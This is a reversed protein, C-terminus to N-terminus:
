ARPSRIRRAGTAPTSAAPPTEALGRECRMLKERRTRDLVNENVHTHYRATRRHDLHYVIAQGTIVKLTLGANRLREALEIVECGREDFATNFGNVRWLDERWAAFNCRHVRRFDNLRVAPWPRRIGEHLGYARRQLFWIWPHFSQTSVRRVYRARVGARRGQVFAGAAAHALHDSIFSRHLLCDGEVFILYDGRAAQVACNLASSFSRSGPNPASFRQLTVSLRSSWLKVVGSTAPDESQDVIFIEHPLCSQRAISGLVRELSDPRDYTSVILTARLPPVSPM